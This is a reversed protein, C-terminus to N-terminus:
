LKVRLMVAKVFGILNGKILTVGTGMGITIGFDVVSLAPADNKGDSVM